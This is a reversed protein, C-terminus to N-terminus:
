GEPENEKWRTVVLGLIIFVVTPAAVVNMNILIGQAGKCISCVWVEM